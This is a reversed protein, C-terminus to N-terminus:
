ITKALLMSDCFRRLITHFEGALTAYNPDLVCQALCIWRHATGDTWDLSVLMQATTRSNFLVTGETANIVLEDEGGQKHPRVLVM